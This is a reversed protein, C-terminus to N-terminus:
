PLFFFSAGLFIMMIAAFAIVEILKTKKQAMGICCRATM